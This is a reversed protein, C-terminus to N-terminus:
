QTHGVHIYLTSDYFTKLQETINCGSFHATNTGNTCQHATWHFWEGLKSKMQQREWNLREQQLGYTPRPAKLINIQQRQSGKFPLHHDFPKLSPAAARVICLVNEHLKNMHFLILERRKDHSLQIEGPQLRASSYPFTIQVM